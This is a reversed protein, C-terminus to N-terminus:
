PDFVVGVFHYENCKWSMPLLNQYLSIEGLSIKGAIVITCWKVLYKLAVWLTIHVYVIIKVLHINIKSLIEGVM